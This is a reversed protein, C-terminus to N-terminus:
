FAYRLYEFIGIKGDGNTDMSNREETTAGQVASTYTFTLDVYNWTNNYYAVARVSTGNAVAFGNPAGNTDGGLFFPVVKDQTTWKGNIYWDVQTVNLTPDVTQLQLYVKGNSPAAAEVVKIKSTSGLVRAATPTTTTTVSSTYTLTSEVFNWTNNVYGVARFKTTSGTLTFGVATGNTDGGIYYPVVKDQSTWKDNVYLEMQTVNLSPDAVMQIFVKNGEKPKVEMFRIKGRNTSTLERPFTAGSIPDTTSIPFPTASTPVPTPTSPATTPIGTPLVTSLPPTTGVPIIVDPQNPIPAQSTSGGWAIKMAELKNTDGLVMPGSWNYIGWRWGSLVDHRWGYHAHHVGWDRYLEAKDKIYQVYGKTWGQGGWEGVYHPVNNQAAWDMAYKKRLSFQPYRTGAMTSKDFYLTEKGLETWVSSNGPYQASTDVANYGPHSIGMPEYDHVEYVINELKAGSATKLVRSFSADACAEVFILHNPDIAVVSRAIGEAINFWHNCNYKRWDPFPENLLDYGGVVPNNKYRTAVDLWFAKLEAQESASDWFGCINSYGEYCNGPTTFMNLIFWLGNAQAYGIHQDLKQFFETRNNKYWNFSLGYRIHNIGLSKAVRYDEETNNLNGMNGSGIGAGLSKINDFNTGRLTIKQGNYIIDKGSAQLFGGSTGAGTSPTPTPLISPIPTSVVNTPVPTAIPTPVPTGQVPTGSGGNVKSFFNTVYTQGYSNLTTFDGSTMNNEDCWNWMWAFVGNHGKPIGTSVLSSLLNSPYSSVVGTTGPNIQGLEGILVPVTGAADFTPKVRSNLDLNPYWHNSFVVNAAGGLLSADHTRVEAMHTASTGGAWGRTDLVVVGKFNLTNRFYTLTTKNQDRWHEWTNGDSSAQSGYPENYPNMILMSEFGRNRSEQVMKQFLPYSTTQYGSLVKGTFSHDSPMVYIGNRAFLEMFDMFQTFNTTSESLWSTKYNFRVANIGMSKMTAVIDNRKNWQGSTIDSCGRDRYFELNVGEVIFRNGNPLQLSTGSMKLAGNSAGGTSPSPTPTRIPTPTPTLQSTPVPTPAATSPVGSASTLEVFYAEGNNLSPLSLSLTNNTVAFTQDYSVSLSSVENQATSPSFPIKSAQVRVSSGLGLNQLTAPTAGSGSYRGILLYAKSGNKTAVADLGSDYNVKVVTGTMDAYKRYTWYAARPKLNTTLLHNLQRRASSEVVDWYALSSGALQNRETHAILTVLSSPKVSDYISMSPNYYLVENLEYGPNYNAYAPYTSRIQTVIAKADNLNRELVAPTISTFEHWSIIDPLVNNQASYLLFARVWEYSNPELTKSFAITSPGVIEAQPDLQRLLVYTRKWWEFFVDRGATWTWDSDAENWIDYQYSIGKGKVEAVKTRVFADWSPWKNSIDAMSSPKYNYGPLLQVVTTGYQQARSLGKTGTLRRFIKPRLPDILSDPVADDAGGHFGLGRRSATGLSQSFDVELAYSFTPQVLFTFLFFLFVAIRSIVSFPPFKSNM